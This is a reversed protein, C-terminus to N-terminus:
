SLKEELEAWRAYLRDVEEQAEALAVVRQELAAADTAISPDEADRRARELREEAELVREEMGDWERQDLYSLKRARPREERSEGGPLKPKRAAPSQRSIVASRGCVSSGM